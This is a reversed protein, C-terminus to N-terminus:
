APRPGREFVQTLGGLVQGMGDAALNGVLWIVVFLAGVLSLLVDGISVAAGALGLTAGFSAGVLAFPVVAASKPHMGHWGWRAAGATALLPTAVLRVAATVSADVARGLFTTCAGAEWDDPYRGDTLLPLPPALPYQLTTIFRESSIHM